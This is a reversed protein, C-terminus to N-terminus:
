HNIIKFEVDLSAVTKTIEDVLKFQYQYENPNLTIFYQRGFTFKEIEYRGFIPCPKVLKPNLRKMLYKIVLIVRDRNNMESCWDVTKLGYYDVFVGNKM